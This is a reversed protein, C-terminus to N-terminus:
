RRFNLASTARYGRNTTRLMLACPQRPEPTRKTLDRAPLDSAHGGISKSLPPEM